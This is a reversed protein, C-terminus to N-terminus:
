WRPWRRRRTPRTVPWLPGVLDPGLPGPGYFGVTSVIRGFEEEYVYFSACERIAPMDLERLLQGVDAEPDASGQLLLDGLLGEFITYAPLLAPVRQAPRMKAVVNAISVPEAPEM